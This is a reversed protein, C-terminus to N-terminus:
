FIRTQSLHLLVIISVHKPQLQANPTIIQVTHLPFYTVRTRVPLLLEQMGQYGAASGSPTTFTIFEAAEASMSSLICCEAAGCTRLLEQIILAASSSLKSTFVLVRSINGSLQSLTDAGVDLSVLVHDSSLHADDLNWKLAEAFSADLVVAIKGENPSHRWEISRVLDALM